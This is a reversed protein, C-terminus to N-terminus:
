LKELFKLFEGGAREKREYFYLDHVTIVKEGKTPFYIPTPSLTVDVEEGTLAEFSPWPFNLLLFDLLKGPFRRHIFKGDPLKRKLEFPKGKFSASFYVFSHNSKGNISELLSLLWMGVGAPRLLLPRIDIGIKM